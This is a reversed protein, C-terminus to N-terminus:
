LAQYPLFRHPVRQGRQVQSLIATLQWRQVRLATVIAAERERLERQVQLHIAMDELEVQLEVMIIIPALPLNLSSTQYVNVLQVLLQV